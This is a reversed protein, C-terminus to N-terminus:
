RASATAPTVITSLLFKVFQRDLKQQEAEGQSRKRRQVEDRQGAHLGHLVPFHAGLSRVRRVGVVRDVTTAGAMTRCIARLSLGGGRAM